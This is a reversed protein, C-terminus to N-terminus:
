GLKVFVGTGHLHLLGAGALAETAAIREGVTYAYDETTHFHDLVVAGGVVLNARITELATRTGSYNDTDVFALLIPEDALRGPATKGIEGVVLEIEYPETYRRVADLDKFVCRPHQYLDLLSSRPPFGEWADFGIVPCDKLGLAAAAKALWVSTGGKFAGLEIIAGTRGNAAAARLCDYLHVRTHPHGTAYSPVLAPAELRTFAQEKLEQHGLGALVVEPLPEQADLVDAAARLLREKSANGAIVVLSPKLGALESWPLAWPGRGEDLEPDFIAVSGGRESLTAAVEIAAAGRGIVAVEKRGAAIWATAEEILTRSFDGSKM